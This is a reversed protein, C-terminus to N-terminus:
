CGIREVRSGPVTADIGDPFRVWAKFGGDYDRAWVILRVDRGAYRARGEGEPDIGLMVRVFPNHQREEGVTTRDVHGPAITMSDPLTMLREVISRRLDEFTTHGPASTGGVSGRFLTDGTFCVRDNILFAAQGVTHGPVHLVRIDLGGSRIVQGDELEEDVGGIFPAELRHACVRGGTERALRSNEAVHDGHHHTNFIHTVRLRRSRITRLVRDLPGASDVIVAAGGDRDGVLYTNSLWQPHTVQELIM